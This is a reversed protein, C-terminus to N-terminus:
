GRLRSKCALCFEAWPYYRRHNIPHPCDLLDSVGKNVLDRIMQSMPVGAKEAAAKWRERDSGTLRILVNKDAPGEEPSLESAIAKDKSEAEKAVAAALNTEESM